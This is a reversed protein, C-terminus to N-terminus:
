AAEKKQLQEQREQQTKMVRLLKRALNRYFFTTEAVTACEGLSLEVMEGEPGLLRVSETVPVNRFDFLISPNLTLAPNGTILVLPTTYILSLNERKAVPPAQLTQPYSGGFFINTYLSYESSGNSDSRPDLLRLDEELLDGYYSEPLLITIPATDSYTGRTYPVVKSKEQIHYIYLPYRTGNINIEGQPNYVTSNGSGSFDCGSFTFLLLTWLTLLSLTTKHM